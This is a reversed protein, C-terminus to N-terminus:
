RCRIRRTTTRRSWTSPRTTSPNRVCSRSRGDTLITPDDKYAVGTRTNVRELVFRVTEKFDDILQPDTWFAERPKDRFAAYEAVGGWWKWNNVLPIILRVKKERAVELVMDLTEFGEENFEGPGLVFRPMGEPDSAKRVSLTYTRVVRGGMQRVSELADRVEYEDPWRFPMSQDFRMDDEIYFLNPINFSLFRFEHDGEYLLGDRPTIFEAEALPQPPESACSLQLALTLVLWSGTRGM